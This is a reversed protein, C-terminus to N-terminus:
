SWVSDVIIFQCIENGSNWVIFFQYTFKDNCWWFHNFFTNKLFVVFFKQTRVLKGFFDSQLFFRRCIISVDDLAIIIIGLNPYILHINANILLMILLHQRFTYSIYNKKESERREFLIKAENNKSQRQHSAYLQRRLILISRLEIKPEPVRLLQNERPYNVFGTPGAVGWPPPIIFWPPTKTKSQVTWKLKPKLNWPVRISATGKARPIPVTMSSTVWILDVIKALSKLGSWNPNKSSSYFIAVLQFIYNKYKSRAWFFEALGGHKYILSLTENLM